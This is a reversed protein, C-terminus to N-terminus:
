TPLNAFCLSSHTPAYIPYNSNTHLKTRQLTTVSNARMGGGGSTIRMAYLLALRLGGGHPDAPAAKGTPNRPPAVDFTVLGQNRQEDQPHQQFHVRTGAHNRITGMLKFEPLILRRMLLTM